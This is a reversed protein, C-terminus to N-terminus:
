LINKVLKLGLLTLTVTLIKTHILTSRSSIEEASFKPQHIMCVIGILNLGPNVYVALQSLVPKIIRTLIITSRNLIIYIFISFNTGKFQIFHPARWQTIKRQNSSILIVRWIFFKINKQLSYLHLIVHFYNYKKPFVDNSHWAKKVPINEKSFPISWKALSVRSHVYNVRYCETTYELFPFLPWFQGYCFALLLACSMTRLNTGATSLM